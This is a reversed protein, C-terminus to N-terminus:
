VNEELIKFFEGSFREANKESITKDKGTVSFYYKIKPETGSPRVAVWSGDDLFFKLVNSKPLQIKTKENKILDIEESTEFDQVRVVPFDTKNIFDKRLFTMIGSMIRKGQIGEYNKSINIEKHYGYQQYIENLRDILTNNEKKLDDAIQSLLLVAQIGDKDRVFLRPMYGYSEEYGFIYKEGRSELEKALEAIYKFGTLVEYTKVNKEKAIKASLDATVVTKVIYGEAPVPVKNVLYDVMLIGMQNGTLVVYENNHLVQTGIRDGDPDTAMLLDPKEGKAKELLLKFSGPDEPNPYELDPFESNPEAQEELVKFNGFGFDEMVRTVAKRSTGFFPSFLISIDKSGKKMYELNKIEEYYREYVEEYILNVMGCSLYYEFSDTELDLYNTVGNVEGIILDAKEETVQAGDDWYVKYGNYNKPNHSATIMVGGSCNLSRVGYSLVPTPTVEKFLYVKIGNSAFIKASEESFNQSMRRSDYALIVSNDKRGNKNIAQAFGQAARRVTYINMRNTGAGLIGRLGATGFEITQYFREEIEKENGEISALERKIEPDLDKKSKWTEYIKLYEKKEEM